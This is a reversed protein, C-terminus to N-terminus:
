RKIILMSFEDESMARYYYFGQAIFCGCKKVYEAQEATEIGVMVCRMGIENAMSIAYRLMINNKLSNNMDVFSKDIKIVDWPLMRLINMSSYGSGFNDISVCIGNDHLANVVKELRNYGIDSSETIEIEIYKKPVNYKNIIELINDIYKQSMLTVYSINCSIRVVKKGEDLWKRINRCVNELIFRDLYKVMGNKELIPVFEDPDLEVGDHRWRCLAEAGVIEKHNLEVKPQYYVELERYEIATTFIRQIYKNKEEIREMEKDYVVITKDAGSSRAYIQAISVKDMVETYAACEKDISYVGGSASVNVVENKTLGLKIPCGTLVKIVEDTKDTKFLIFFNDGGIRGVDGGEGLHRRIEEIYRKMVKTGVERGYEENVISFRKLNIYAASYEHAIGERIMQNLYRFMYSLNYIGLEADKNILFNLKNSTHIRVNFVYLADLFFKVKERVPENWDEDGDIQYMRYIIHNNDDLVSHKELFREKDIKDGTRVLPFDGKTKMEGRVMEIMSITITSIHLISCIRETSEGVLPDFMEKAEITKIFFDEYADIYEKLDLSMGLNQVGKKKQM